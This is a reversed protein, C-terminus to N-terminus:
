SERRSIQIKPEAATATPGPIRLHSGDDGSNILVQTTSAGRVQANNEKREEESRQDAQSLKQDTQVVVNSM